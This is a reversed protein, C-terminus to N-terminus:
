PQYLTFNKLIDPLGLTGTFIGILAYATVIVILGLLAFTITKQASQLAKADGRSITFRIAGYILFILAAFGAFMFAVEVVNVVVQSLCGLSPVDAIGSAGTGALGLLTCGHTLDSQIPGIAYAPSLFNSLYFTLFISILFKKM